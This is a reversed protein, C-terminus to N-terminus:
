FKFSYQEYSDGHNRIHKKNIVEKGSKWIRVSNTEGSLTLVSYVNNQLSFSAAAKHRTGCDEPLDITPHDVVLYIGAGIIQGTIDIVIAGDYPHRSFKKITLISEESGVMILSNIPNKKPKMQILNETRDRSQLFNGFVIISGMADTRGNVVDLAIDELISFINEEIKSTNHILSRMKIYKEECIKM